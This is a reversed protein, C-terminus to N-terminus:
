LGLKSSFCAPIREKQAELLEGTMKWVEDLALVSSVNPDMM